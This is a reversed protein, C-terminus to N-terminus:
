MLLVWVANSIVGVEQKKLALSSKLCGSHLSKLSNHNKRRNELLARGQPQQNSNNLRETM